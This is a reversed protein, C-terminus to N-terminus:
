TVQRTEPLADKGGGFDATKSSSNIDQFPAMSNYPNQPQPKSPQYYSYVHSFEMYLEKFSIRSALPRVLAKKLVKNFQDFSPNWTVLNRDCKYKILEAFRKVNSESINQDGSNAESYSFPFNRHSFLYMIISFKWVFKKHLSILDRPDISTLELSEPPKFNITNKDLVRLDVAWRVPPVLFFQKDDNVVLQDYDIDQQAMNTNEFIVYSDLIMMGVRALELNSLYYGTSMTDTVARMNGESKFFVFVARETLKYHEIDLYGGFGCRKLFEMKRTAETFDIKENPKVEIAQVLSQQGTSDNKAVFIQNLAGSTSVQQSPFITYNDIKYSM